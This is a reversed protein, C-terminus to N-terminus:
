LKADRIAALQRSLHQHRKWRETPSLRLNRRIRDRRAEEPDLFAVSFDEWDSGNVSIIEAFRTLSARDLPVLSTESLREYAGPNLSLFCLAIEVGADSACPDPGASRITELLLSLAGVLACRGADAGAKHAEIRLRELTAGLILRAARPDLECGGRAAAAIIGEIDPVNPLDFAANM